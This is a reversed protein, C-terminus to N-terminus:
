HKEDLLWPKALDCNRRLPCTLSCYCAKFGAAFGSFYTRFFHSEAAAWGVDHGERESLYWKDEEISKRLIKAQESFFSTNSCSQMTLRM